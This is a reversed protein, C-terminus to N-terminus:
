GTKLAVPGLFTGQDWGLLHTWQQGSTCLAQAKECDKALTVSSMDSERLLIHGGSLLSRTGNLEVGWCQDSPM